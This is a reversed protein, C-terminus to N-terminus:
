ASRLDAIFAHARRSGTGAKPGQGASAELAALGFTEPDVNTVHGFGRASVTPGAIDMGAILGLEAAGQLDMVREHLERVRESRSLAALRLARLADVAADFADVFEGNSRDGALAELEQRIDAAQAERHAQQAAAVKRAAAERRLTLFRRFGAVRQEAEAVAEPTVSEDGSKAREELGALLDEADRLESEAAELEASTEATVQDVDTM